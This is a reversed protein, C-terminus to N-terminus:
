HPFVRYVKTKITPIHSLLRDRIAQEEPTLEFGEVFYSNPEDKSTSKKELIVQTSPLDSDGQMRSIVWIFNDSSSLKYFLFRYENISFDSPDDLDVTKETAEWPMGNSKLSKSPSKAM